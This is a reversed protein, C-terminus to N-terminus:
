MSTGQERIKRGKLHLHYTGRFRKNVWSRCPSVDWFVANKMTVAALVEFGVEITETIITAKESKLGSSSLLINRRL